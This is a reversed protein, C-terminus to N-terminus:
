YQIRLISPSLISFRLPNPPVHTALDGLLSRPSELVCSCNQDFDFVRILNMTEAPYQNLLKNIAAHLRQLLM